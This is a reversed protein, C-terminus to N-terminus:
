LGRGRLPRMGYGLTAAAACGPSGGLGEWRRSTYGAERAMVIPRIEPFLGILIGHLLRLRRDPRSHIASGRREFDHAFTGEATITGDPYFRLLHVLKRPGVARGYCTRLAGFEISHRENSGSASSRWGAWWVQREEVWGCGPLCGGAEGPGSRRGIM